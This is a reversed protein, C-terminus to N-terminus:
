PQCGRQGRLQAAPAPVGELPEVFGKFLPTCSAKAQHQHECWPRLCLPLHSCQHRQADNGCTALLCHWKLTIASQGKEGMEPLFSPLSPAGLQWIVVAGPVPSPCPPHASSVGSFGWHPSRELTSSSCKQYSQSMLFLFVHM